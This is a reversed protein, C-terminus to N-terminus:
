IIPEKSRTAHVCLSLCKVIIKEHIELINNRVWAKLPSAFSIVNLFIQLILCLKFSRMSFWLSDFCEGSVYLSISVVKLGHSCQSRESRTVSAHPHTNYKLYIYLFLMFQCSNSSCTKGERQDLTDWSWHADHNM